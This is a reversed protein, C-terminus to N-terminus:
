KGRVVTTAHPIVAELFSDAGPAYQFVVIHEPVKDLNAKIKLALAAKATYSIERWDQKGHDTAVEQALPAIWDEFLVYEAKGEGKVVFADIYVNIPRRTLVSPLPDSANLAEILKDTAPTMEAAPEEKAKRTRKKAEPLKEVPAPVPADPPALREMVDADSLEAPPPATETVPTSAKVEARAAAKEAGKKALKEALSSMNPKDEKKTKQVDIQVLQGADKKKNGSLFAATVNVGIGCRNRYFCGGYLNCSDTNPTLDEARDPVDGKPPVLSSVVKAMEKTIDITKAWIEDVQERTVTVSVEHGKPYKGKTLLYIHKLTVTDGSFGAFYWKAYANLQIDEALEGPTKAYKFDSTTKYDGILEHKLLDVYGVLLPGGDFTPLTIEQEAKYQEDPGPLFPAAVAVYDAFDPDITGHKLYNEIATHVKTGREQAPTTPQRIKLITSNYWRRPCEVYSRIQSASTHAYRGAIVAPRRIKEPKATM